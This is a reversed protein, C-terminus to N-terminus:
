APDQIVAAALMRITGPLTNMQFSQVPRRLCPFAERANGSGVWYNATTSEDLSTEKDVSKQPNERMVLSNPPSQLILMM